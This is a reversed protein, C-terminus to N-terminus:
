NWKSEGYKAMVLRIEFYEIGSTLDRIQKLQKSDSQKAAILIMKQKEVQVFPTIDFKEDMFAIEVIHDEITSQKLNRIVAIEDINLGKNLLAYTKQTSFTFSHPNRVDAIIANLLQYQDPDSQVTKIMLHILSLFNLHYYTYEQQLFGAAQHSTLGIRDHGTLRIVLISPDILPESEFCRVMELYLRSALEERPTPSNQIFKKIWVQVDSKRQVPIYETHHHVLNSCVQVLLSLRGWFFGTMSHYGWGNIFIPISRAKLQEKLVEKGENTLLFHQDSVKKVLHKTHFGVIREELEERTLFHYAQFFKTLQFLHADQITQSSKKGKLLHYVSYISREGNIQNLCYLIVTELYTGLMKGGKIIRYNPLNIKINWYFKQM